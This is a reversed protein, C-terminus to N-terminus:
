MHINRREEVPSESTINLDSCVAASSSSSQEVDGSNDDGVTLSHTNLQNKLRKEILWQPRMLCHIGGQGAVVFLQLIGGLFFTFGPWWDLTANFIPNFILSSLMPCFAMIISCVTLLRATQEKPVMRPLFSRYGPAIGGCLLTLAGTMFIEMTTTASSIWLFSAASAAIGVIIMLSDKGLWHVLTLLLPCLVMGLSFLTGRLLSFNSFTKDSWSFPPRKVLLFLLSM